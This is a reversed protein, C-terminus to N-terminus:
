KKNVGSNVVANNKINISKVEESKAEKGETGERNPKIQTPKTAAGIKKGEGDYLQKVPESHPKCWSVCPLVTQGLQPIIPVMPGNCVNPLWRSTDAVKNRVKTVRMGGPAEPDYCISNVDTCCYFGCPNYQIGTVSTAPAPNPDTVGVQQDRIDDPDKYFDDRKVIVQMCEGQVNRYVVEPKGSNCDHLRKYVEPSTQAGGILGIRFLGIAIDDFAADQLGKFFDWYGITYEDIINPPTTPTLTSLRARIANITDIIESCHEKGLYSTDISIKRIIISTEYNGDEDPGCTWTHYHVRLLCWPYKPDTYQTV